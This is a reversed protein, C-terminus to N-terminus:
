TTPTTAAVFAGDYRGDLFQEGNPSFVVPTTVAL